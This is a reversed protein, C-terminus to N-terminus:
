GWRAPRWGSTTACAACSASVRSARSGARREDPGVTMLGDVVLGATPRKTSWRRSRRRRSLRGKGAGRHHQGPGPRPGRAGTQGARRRAGPPRRDRLRRRSRRDPAGQQDAAPRHLARGVGFSGDAFKAVLEQAYNEGVATLGVDGRRGPRGRGSPGQHRRPDRRRSGGADVIQQPSAALREALAASCRTM